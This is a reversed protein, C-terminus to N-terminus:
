CHFMADYAVVKVHKPKIKLESKIPTKDDPIQLPAEEIIYDDVIVFIEERDTGTGNKVLHLKIPESYGKSRSTRFDHFLLPDSVIIEMTAEYEVAGEAVLSPNRSGAFPVQELSAGATNTSEALPQAGVTYYQQMGNDGKISFKTVQAINQGFATITGNYFFFPKETNPAIGAQKRELPGNAINEFMRHATFRDGKNSDELRGTDTYCMLADFNVAMKVEADQDATLEFDKVKCGKFVRTLQKSDNASDPANTSQSSAYGGTGYSNVDRTRISTELSFSPVQSGQWIARKQRNQINGFTTPGTQFNPSGTANNDAVVIRNVAQIGAVGNKVGHDFTFPDDVYIRVFKNTSDVATVRRIESRISSHFQTETGATGWKTRSGEGPDDDMPTLVEDNDVVTIYDGVNPMTGTTAGIVVDRMFGIYTAGKPIAEVNTGDDIEAYGTPATNYIAENGLAYYFWRASHMMTELTGGENKMNQPEQVVVDRGVGVVHSRKITVTTEPLTVTAALGVFQDTLVSEDSAAASSDYDMGVDITPMGLAEFILEDGTASGGTSKMAPTVQITDGSNAVVRYQHGNTYDDSSYNGSSNVRMSAGVMMGAPYRLEGSSTSFFSKANSAVSGSPMLTITSVDGSTAISFTLGGFAGHTLTLGTEHGFTVEALDGRYVTSPM